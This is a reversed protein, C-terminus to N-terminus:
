LIRSRGLIMTMPTRLEHSSRLIVYDKLYNARELQENAQVLKQNAAELEQAYTQTRQQAALIHRRASEFRFAVGVAVLQMAVFPAFIAIDWGINSTLLGPRTIFTAIAILGIAIAFLAPRLGWLLAVLISVLGFPASTFLPATEVLSM